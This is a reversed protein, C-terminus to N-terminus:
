RRGSRSRGMQRSTSTAATTSTREAGPTAPLGRARRTWSCSSHTTTGLESATPQEASRSRVTPAPSSGAPSTVATAASGVIEFCPGWGPGFKVILTDNIANGQRTVEQIGGAVYVSGDPAVTVGGRADAIEATSYVRQWLFTGQPDLKVLLV